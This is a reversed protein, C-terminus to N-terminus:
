ATWDPAILFGLQFDDRVATYIATNGWTLSSGLYVNYNPPHNPLDADSGIIASTYPVNNYWPVSFSIETDNPSQGFHWPAGNSYPAVADPGLEPDAIMTIITGSSYVFKFHLGGRQFLFMRNIVHATTNELPAYVGYIVTSIATSEPNQYDQYRKLLDTVYMSTESTVHHSDVLYECEMLFPNFTKDFEGRIDCQREFTPNRNPYGYVLTDPTCPLSFQADPGAASFIVLDIMPTTSTDNSVIQTLVSVQLTLPKDDVKAFDTPWVFPVTFYETTEGKVDVVRTLNNAIKDLVPTDPPALCILFRASVFAPCFFKFLFRVSSRWFQHLDRVVYLPTGSGVYPFTCTNVTNTFTFQGHLAPTMAVDLFTYARGNPLTSFDTNLYSTKYLSLSLAQDVEDACCTNASNYPIVKTVEGVQDPKDLLGGLTEVINM